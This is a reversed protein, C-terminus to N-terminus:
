VMFWARFEKPFTYIDFPWPCLEFALYFPFVISASTSEENAPTSWAIDHKKWTRANENM